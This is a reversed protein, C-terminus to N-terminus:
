KKAWFNTLRRALSATDGAYKLTRWFKPMLARYHPDAFREDILVVVGKDTESRIVRGAAQMVRNMGPYTYAYATGSEYLEEYYERMAERENSLTPLGVGVVVAGILRNGVLDIGESYIGGMVCFGILAKKNETSFASLFTERDKQSMNKTQCRVDLGPVTKKLLSSINELYQFSPCFVMYNGPKAKVTTLIVRVVERLTSERSSYGTAIKDMVTLCLQDASFPSSLELTHDQKRGGLVAKYYDTPYLTASFLVASQGKDLKEQLTDSPDLCLLDLKTNEGAREYFTVYRKDYLSIRRAIDEMQYCVKMLTRKDAFSLLAKEEGLTDWALVSLKQLVEFIEEPAQKQASFGHPVDAKDHYTDEKTMALIRDHLGQAAMEFLSSLEPLFPLVEGMKRLIDPTLHLSYAEEARDLLNHAEDVLFCWRGPNSFYRKLYVRLDFLYNYDCIIVDCLESYCLSLEYPCVGYALAAKKIDDPTVVTKGQALLHLTAQLMKEGRDCTFKCFQGSDSRCVLSSVCMLEKAFLQIGLLDAGAEKLKHLGEIAVEGVTNKPTFYFIKDFKGEGMARVAPFLMSMTKGIGTPACAFLRGGKAITRYVEGILETRGERTHSFPYKVEAMTALRRCVRDLEPAHYVAVAHLMRMCFNELTAFSVRETRTYDYGNGNYIVDMQMMTANHKKAQA